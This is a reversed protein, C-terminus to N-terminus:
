ETRLDRTLLVAFALACALAVPTASLWQGAGGGRESARLGLALTAAAALSFATLGVTDRVTAVLRSPQAEGGRRLRRHVLLAIVGLVGFAIRYYVTEDAWDAVAAAHCSAAPRLAIWRACDAPTLQQGPAVDVLARAGGIGRIIAAVVGSIGVAVAGVGALLVATRALEGFVFRLSPRSRTREAAAIDAVPGFRAVADLEAQHRPVGRATAADVDDHLHAEAEALMGRLERPARDALAAVLSDLYAELPSDADSGPKM